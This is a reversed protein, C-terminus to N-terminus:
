PRDGPVIAVVTRPLLPLGMVGEYRVFVRDSQRFWYFSHWVGGLLGASSVRVRDAVVEEGQIRITETRDHAARLRVMDLNDPRLMWFVMEGDSEATLRRLALSLPQVWPVDGLRFQRRVPDGRLRGTVRVRAGDLVCRVDTGKGRITWERTAGDEGCRVTQTDQPSQSVLRCDDGERVLTWRLVTRVGATEESYTRMEEGAPVALALAALLGFASRVTRM